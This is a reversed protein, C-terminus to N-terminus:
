RRAEEIWYEKYRKKSGDPLEKTITRDQIDIGMNKLELIRASLRISGYKELAEIGTIPGVNLMHEYIQNKQSM